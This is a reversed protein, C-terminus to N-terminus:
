DFINYGWQGSPDTRIPPHGVAAKEVREFADEPLTFM